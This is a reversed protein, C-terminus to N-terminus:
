TNLCSVHQSCDSCFLYLFAGLIFDKSIAVISGSCYMSVSFGMISFLKAVRPTILVSATAAVSGGLPSFFSDVTM